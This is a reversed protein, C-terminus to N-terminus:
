EVTILNMSEGDKHKSGKYLCLSKVMWYNYNEPFGFILVGGPKVIM